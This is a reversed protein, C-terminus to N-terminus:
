GNVHVWRTNPCYAILPEDANGMCTFWGRTQLVSATDWYRDWDTADDTFVDITVSTQCEHGHCEVHRRVWRKSM